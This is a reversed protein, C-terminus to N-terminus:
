LDLYNLLQNYISCENHEINKKNFIQRWLHVGFIHDEAVIDEIQKQLIGYKTQKKFFRDTFFEKAWAWHVPCFAEPDAILEPQKSIQKEYEKLYKSQYATDKGKCNLIKDYDIAETGDLCLVGINPVLKHRCKFAGSQQTYQSSVYNFGNPIKQFLLIDTDLWILREMDNKKNHNFLTFRWKDALFPRYQVEETDDIDIPLIKKADKIHLHTVSINNTFNRSYTYLNVHYGLKIWSHICVKSIDDLQGDIWLCTITNTEM